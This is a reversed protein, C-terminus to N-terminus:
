NLHQEDVRFILNRGDCSGNGGKPAHLRNEAEDFVFSHPGDMVEDRVEMESDAPLRHMYVHRDAEDLRDAHM